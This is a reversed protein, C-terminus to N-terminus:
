LVISEVSASKNVQQYGKDERHEPFLECYWSTAAVLSSAQEETSLFRVDFGIFRCVSFKFLQVFFQSQLSKYYFSINFLLFKNYDGWIIM